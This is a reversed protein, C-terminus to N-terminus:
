ELMKQNNTYIHPVCLFPRQMKLPQRKLLQRRFSAPSSVNYRDRLNSLLIEENSKFIHIKGIFSVYIKDTLSFTLNPKLGEHLTLPQFM